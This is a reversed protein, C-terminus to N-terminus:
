NNNMSKPLFNKGIVAGLIDAIAHITQKKRWKDIGDSFQKELTKLENQNAEFTKLSTDVIDQTEKYKEQSERLYYTLKEVQEKSRNAMADWAKLQDKISIGRNRVLDLQQQFNQATDLLGQLDEKCKDMNLAPIYNGTSGILMQIALQQGLSIAQLNQTIRRPNLATVQAVYSTLSLAINPNNWFLISAIRMQTDLSRTERDSNRFEYDTIWKTLPTSSGAKFILKVGVNETGLLDLPQPKGNKISYTFKVDQSAWYLIIIHGDEPDPNITIHVSDSATLVRAQLVISTRDTLDIVTNPNFALVDAVM